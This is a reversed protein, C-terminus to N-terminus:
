YAKLIKKLFFLPRVIKKDVEIEVGARQAEQVTKPVITDAAESMLLTDKREGKATQIKPHIHTDGFATPHVEQSPPIAEGAWLSSGILLAFLLAILRFRSM